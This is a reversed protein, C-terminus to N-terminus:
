KLKEAEVIQSLCEVARDIQVASYASNVEFIDVAYRHAKLNQIRVHEPVRSLDKHLSDESRYDVQFEESRESFDSAEDHLWQVSSLEKMEGVVFPHRIQIIADVASDSCILTVIFRPVFIQM